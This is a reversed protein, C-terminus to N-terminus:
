GYLEHNNELRKILFSEEMEIEKFFVRKEIFSILKKDLM